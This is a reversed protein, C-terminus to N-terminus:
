LSTSHLGTEQESGISNTMYCHLWTINVTEESSWQLWVTSSMNHNTSLVAPLSDCYDLKSVIFRKGFVVICHVAAALSWSILMLQLPCIRTSCCDVDLNHIVVSPQITLTARPTTTLKAFVVFCWNPLTLVLCNLAMSRIIDEISVSVRNVCLPRVVIVHYICSFM